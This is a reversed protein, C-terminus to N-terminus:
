KRNPLTIIGNPGSQLHYIKSGAASNHFPTHNTPNSGHVVPGPNSHVTVTSTVGNVPTHVYTNVYGPGYSNTGAGYHAGGKGWLPGIPLWCVLTIMIIWRM